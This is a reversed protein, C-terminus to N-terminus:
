DLVFDPELWVGLLLEEVAVVDELGAQPSDGVRRPLVLTHDDVRHVVQRETKAHGGLRGNLYPRGIRHGDDGKM